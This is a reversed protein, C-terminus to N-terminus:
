IGNKTEMKLLKRIERKALSLPILGVIGFLSDIVRRWIPIDRIAGFILAYPIVLLCAIIGFDVVWKNRM